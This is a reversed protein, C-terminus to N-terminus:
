VRMVSDCGCGLAYPRAATARRGAELVTRGRGIGDVGDGRLSRGTHRDATRLRAGTARGVELVTRGGGVGDRGEGRLSRGTHRDATRLRAGTVRGVQFVAGCCEIVERPRCEDCPSKCEGAGGCWAVPV